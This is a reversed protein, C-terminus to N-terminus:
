AKFFCVEALKEILYLASLAFLNKYLKHIKIKM